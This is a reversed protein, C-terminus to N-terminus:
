AVSVIHGNKDARLKYEAVWRQFQKYGSGKGKFRTSFYQEGERVIDFYNADAKRSMEVWTQAFLVSSFSTLMLVSFVFSRLMKKM